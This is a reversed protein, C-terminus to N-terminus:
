FLHNIGASVGTQRSQGVTIMNGSMKTRDIEAYLNTRKSLNYTVGLMFLDKKGDRIAVAQTKRTQYYAGIVQTLASVNYQLGAWLYQTETDRGALVQDKQDAYGATLRFPLFQYAAGVTYHRTDLGTVSQKQTYAGGVNVPGQAYSLAAGTTSGKGTSGAQEGAGYVARATVPGFTGNYQVANNDDVGLTANISHAIGTYKLGFPDYPLITKFAITFQRGVDVAGWAGGIGVYSAANFLVGVQEGTGLKFRSELNFHANLGGGLDEVGEFGLRNSKYTGNSSVTLRSNGAADVNSLNRLGGDVSGYIRVSSQASAAGAFAGFLACALYTKKM